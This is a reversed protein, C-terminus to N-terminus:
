EPVCIGTAREGDETVFRVSSGPCLSQCAVPSASDDPDCYPYCAYSDPASPGSLCDFGPACDFRAVCSQHEAVNGSLACLPLTSGYCGLKPDGCDQDLVSCRFLERVPAVADGVKRRPGLVTDMTALGGAITEFSPVASLTMRRGFVAAVDGIDELVEDSTPSASLVVFAASFHRDAEPLLEVTGHRAIIEQLSVTRIGSAEVLVTGDDGVEGTYEALSAPGHAPLQERSLPASTRPRKRSRSAAM